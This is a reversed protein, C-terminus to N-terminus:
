SANADLELRAVVPQIRKAVSLPETQKVLFIGLMALFLSIVFLLFFQILTLNPVALPFLFFIISFVVMLPAMAWNFYFEVYDSTSYDFVLRGDALKFHRQARFLQYVTLEGNSKEYLEDLKERLCKGACIGTAQRFVHTNFEEKVFLRTAGTIESHALADKLFELKRHRLQWYVDAINKTNVILAFAVVFVLLLWNGNEVSKVLIEFIKELM